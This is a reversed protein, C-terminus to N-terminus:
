EDIFTKLRNQILSAVVNGDIYEKPSSLLYNKFGMVDLFAVIRKSYSISNKNRSSRKTKERQM